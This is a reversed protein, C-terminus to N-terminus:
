ANVGGRGVASAARTRRRRHGEEEQLINLTEDFLHSFLLSNIMLYPLFSVSSNLGIINGINGWIM